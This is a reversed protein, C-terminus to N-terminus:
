WIKAVLNVNQVNSHFVYRRANAETRRRMKRSTKRGATNPAESNYVPMGSKSCREIHCISATLESNLLTNM